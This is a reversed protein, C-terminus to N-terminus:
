KSLIVTKNNVNETYITYGTFDRILVKPEIFATPKKRSIDSLLNAVRHNADPLVLDNFYVNLVGLLAATVFVPTLLPALSQGSAKISTIENDGAMRGFTTLTAVLIAMPIALTVIWALQIAFVELVVLPDLGKSIIKDLLLVVQQMVFLFVIIALASLFPVVHERVIYRYLIM